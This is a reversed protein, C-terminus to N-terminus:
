VVLMLNLKLLQYVILCQLWNIARLGVSQAIYFKGHEMAPPFATLHCLTYDHVVM